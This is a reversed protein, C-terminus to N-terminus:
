RSPFFQIAASLQLSVSNLAHSGEASRYIGANLFVLFELVTVLSWGLFQSLFQLTLTYVLRCPMHTNKLSTRQRKCAKINMEHLYIDVAAFSVVSFIV